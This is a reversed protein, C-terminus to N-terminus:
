LESKEDRDDEALAQAYQTGLKEKYKEKQYGWMTCVEDLTQAVTAFDANDPLKRFGMKIEMKGKEDPLESEGPQGQAMLIQPLKTDTLGLAKVVKKAEKGLAAGFRVDKDTGRTYEMSLARYMDPVTEKESLLMVTPALANGGLFAQIGAATFQVVTDDGNRLLSRAHKELGEATREGTHPKPTVDEKEGHTWTHITPYYDLDDCLDISEADMCDVWGFKVANRLAKGAAIWHEKFEACEPCAEMDEKVYAVLWNGMSTGIKREWNAANLKM